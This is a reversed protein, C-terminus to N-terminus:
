QEMEHLAAMGSEWIVIPAGEGVYTGEIKFIVFVIAEPKDMGYCAMLSDVIKKGSYILRESFVGDSTWVNASGIVADDLGNM